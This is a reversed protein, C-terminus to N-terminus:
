DKKYKYSEFKAIINKNTQDITMLSKRDARMAKTSGAKIFEDRAQSTKGSSKDVLHYEFSENTDQGLLEVGKTDYNVSQGQNVLDIKEKLNNTFDRAITKLVDVYKETNYALKLVQKNYKLFNLGSINTISPHGGSNRIILEWAPIKYSSLYAKQDPTMDQFLNDMSSRMETNNIDVNVIKGERKEYVCDKYFAELDSYKFGVGEYDEGEAKLMAKWDQSTEFEKKISELSVYFRKLVSEHKSLVEKAIEGLNIEKLKKEKFPNCSVQILGMPWVICLFDSEPFNKFPTYRDYSGPKIMSGGGYQSIIKYEEDFHVGKGIKAGSTSLYQHRRNTPDYESVDGTEPDEIFRYNKMRDIYASLNTKIEEPTALRGAKDSTKATNIYHRINNFMSYLSANSDLVLCELINKNIHNRKGDLSKVTIRKNKYALLLRNVVFGMMFRNKAGSQSKEHKFISNQVDEPKIDHTLFNASDVTKILEVDQPTFIDSYSIEGSIIEVNSRAPKFYTSQTDEAGVQKDHHDSQIHFMPKGHAFDVLVSLNGEQHHKIAYELGGYQIIHCDVTEIQYYNKLFEKMALASTVGDLDKHFYIEATKHLKAFKSIGRLGVEENLFNKYKRIMNNSM